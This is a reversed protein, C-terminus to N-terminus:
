AIIKCGERGECHLCCASVLLCLLLWLKRTGSRGAFLLVVRLFLKETVLLVRLEVVM